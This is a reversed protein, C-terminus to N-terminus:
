GVAGSPDSEQWPTQSRHRPADESTRVEAPSLADVTRCTAARLGEAYAHLRNVEAPDTLLPHIQTLLAREHRRLEGFVEGILAHDPARSRVVEDLGLLVRVATVEEATHPVLALAGCAYSREDTWQTWRSCFTGAIWLWMEDVSGCWKAIAQGSIGFRAGIAAMSVASAGRSAILEIAHDAIVDRRSASDPRLMARLVPEGVVFLGGRLGLDRLAEGCAVRRLM